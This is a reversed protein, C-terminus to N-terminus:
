VTWLTMTVSVRFTMTVLVQRMIAEVDEQLQAHLDHRTMSSVVWQAQYTSVGLVSVDMVTIEQERVSIALHNAALKVDM